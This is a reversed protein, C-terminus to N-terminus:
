RGKGKGAKGAKRRIREGEYSIGKGLYPEPPRVARIDAAVQGVLQKDIGRVTIKTPAPVEVEIGAPPEMEVPKSYGVALVLKNGQKQARYGVGKLELNKQFGNTVGQVMNAVLSRTLGHIARHRKLDGTRTVVVHGNEVEVRVEPLLAQELRGKPGEVVVRDDSVQVSVGAPIPVPRRGIRSM